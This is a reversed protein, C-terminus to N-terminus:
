QRTATAGLQSGLDIKLDKLKQGRGHDHSGVDTGDEEVDQRRPVDEQSEANEDKRAGHVAQPGLRLHPVGPPEGEDGTEAAAYQAPSETNAARQVRKIHAAPQLRFFYG